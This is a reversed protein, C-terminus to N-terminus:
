NSTGSLGSVPGVYAMLRGATIAGLWCALSGFALKRAAAPVPGQDLQPDGFVTARTRNLLIVAVVILAMKIYFVPNILKTTADAMLLSTGTVANVALGFWMLPFLEEMPKIAVRSAFGMLRLSLIASIGAVVSLGMTHLWLITPYAWISGSERVWSSYGMQEIAALVGM